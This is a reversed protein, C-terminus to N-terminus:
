ESLNDQTEYKGYEPLCTFEGSGNWSGTEDPISVYVRSQGVTSFFYGDEDANQFATQIENWLENRDCEPELACATILTLREMEDVTEGYYEIELVEGTVYDSRVNISMGTDETDFTLYSTVIYFTATGEEDTYEWCDPEAEWQDMSDEPINWVTSVYERLRSLVEGADSAYHAYGNCPEGAQLVKEPDLEQYASAESSETITDYGDWHDIIDRVFGLLPGAFLIVAWILVIFFVVVKTLRKQRKQDEAAKRHPDTNPIGYTHKHDTGCTDYYPSEEPKPRSKSSVSTRTNGTGTQVTRGATKKVSSGTKYSSEHYTGQKFQTYAGPDRENPLCGGTYVIPEKRFRHCESCYGVANLEQECVPCLYRTKM